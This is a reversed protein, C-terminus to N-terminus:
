PTFAPDRHLGRQPRNKTGLNTPNLFGPMQMEENVWESVALRDIAGLELLAKLENVGYHRAVTIIHEANLKGGKRWALYTQRTVGLAEAIDEHGLIQHTLHGFTVSLDGNPVSHQNM